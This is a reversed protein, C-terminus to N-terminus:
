IHIVSCVCLLMDGVMSLKASKCKEWYFLPHSGAVLYADVSFIFPLPPFCPFIVPFPLVSLTIAFHVSTPSLLHFVCTYILISHPQCLPSRRKFLSNSSTPKAWLFGPFLAKRFTDCRIYDEYSDAKVHLFPVDTLLFVKM